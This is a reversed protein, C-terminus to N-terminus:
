KLNQKIKDIVNTEAFLKANKIANYIALADSSGHAKFVVGAAGLVPAGGYEKYNLMKKIGSLGGKLLLAGLKTTIGKNIIAKLENGLFSGAGEITKLLINGTFGDTVLVDVVGDLVDRAEVNGAFNLQKLMFMSKYAQCTLENGKSEETGINLLGVSPSQLGFVGEMYAQGMIGFQVLFEPTCDVNAGCDILLTPKLKGPLLPALAVRRVGKIRKLILTSGSILAGTNGASVFAGGKGESLLKLGVMMSSDKKNKVAQTPNDEYEVVQATHIISYDIKSDGIKESILTSNGVFIPKVSFDSAAKLAGKVIEGPANDGGMADIIIKDM